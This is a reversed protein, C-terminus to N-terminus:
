GDAPTRGERVGNRWSAIRVRRVVIETTIQWLDVDPRRGAMEAATAEATQWHPIGRRTEGFERVEDVDYRITTRRDETDDSMQGETFIWAKLGAM